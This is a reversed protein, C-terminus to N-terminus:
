VVAKPLARNSRFGSLQLSTGVHFTLANVLVQRLRKFENPPFQLIDTFILVDQPVHVCEM